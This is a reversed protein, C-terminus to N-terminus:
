GRCRRSPLSRTLPIPDSFQQAPATCTAAFSGIAGLMAGAALRRLFSGIM